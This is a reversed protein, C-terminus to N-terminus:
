TNGPAQRRDGGDRVGLPRGARAAAIGERLQRPSVVGIVHGVVQGSASIFFTEPLGTAGYRRAVGNGRDRLNLYTVGLQRTFALADDTIDQQNVGVLVAGGSGQARWTRQLLPAEERCPVCWSAWFNLVVPAGRLEALSVRRDAAARAPLPAAPSDSPPLLVPLDVAPAPVPRAQGLADDITTDQSKSLLGYALLGVFGAALVVALARGAHRLAAPV